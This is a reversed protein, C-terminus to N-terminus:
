LVNATKYHYSVTRPPLRGDGAGRVSTVRAADANTRAELPPDRHGVWDTPWDRDGRSIVSCGAFLEGRKSVRGPSSESDTLTEGVRRLSSKKLAKRESPSASSLLSAYRCHYLVEGYTAELTVSPVHIDALLNQWRARHISKNALEAPDLVIKSDLNSGMGSLMNFPNGVSSACAGEIVKSSRKSWAAVSRCVAVQPSM